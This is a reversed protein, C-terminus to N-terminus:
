FSLPFQSTILRLPQNRRCRVQFELKLLWKQHCVLDHVQFIPTSLFLEPCHGLCHCQLHWRSFRPVQLVPRLKDTSVPTLPSPLPLVAAAPKPGPHM